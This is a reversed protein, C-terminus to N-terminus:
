RKLNILEELLTDSTTIIRSNAQFGRQTTIMETFESSLDVNSMELVGTSLKGGDATVDVGRGDFDGSNQTAAFLGTGVAELGAPNSFNAVAVQGLLKSTGNDYSGYIKGDQAISVGSLKGVKRGAGAGELDGKNSNISCAGTTSYQTISSCDMTIVGDKGFLTGEANDGKSTIKLDLTNTKASATTSIFAGSTANFRLQSVTAPTVKAPVAPSSATAAVSKTITYTAGGVSI